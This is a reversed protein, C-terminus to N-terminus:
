SFIDFVLNAFDKEVHSSIDFSTAAFCMKRFAQMDDQCIKFVLSRNAEIYLEITGFDIGRTPPEISKGWPLNRKLFEESEERLIKWRQVGNLTMPTKAIIGKKRETLEQFGSLIEQINGPDIDKFIEVFDEDALFGKSAEAIIEDGSQPKRLPPFMISNGMAFQINFLMKAYKGPSLAIEISDCSLLEQFVQMNHFQEDNVPASVWRDPVYYPFVLSIGQASVTIGCEPFAERIEQYKM